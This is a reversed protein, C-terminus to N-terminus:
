SRFEVDLVVIPWRCHPLLTRAEEVTPVFVLASDDDVPSLDVNGLIRWEREQSWETSVGTKANQSFHRQFFPRDSAGLRDWDAHDGYTVPRTGLQQLHERRICIGYPEFDWRGRHVRFTRLKPVDALQVSTFSVLTAGGRIASSTALIQQQILIRRLAALASHDVIESSFILDDLFDDQAQDPWARHAARTCHTLYPWDVATPLSIIRSSESINSADLSAVSQDNTQPNIRKDSLGGLVVWGVAGAALLEAAIKQSVLEPGLAVYVSQPRWALDALRRKILPLLKGRHRLHFLLLRDSMAMLVRDALPSSVLERSIGKLDEDLMPSVHAEYCRTASWPQRALADLWSRCDKNKGPPRILLLRLDFLEAARRAFEHTTTTAATVIVERRGDAKACATRFVRFWDQSQNLNHGLHSSVLGVRQGAPIGRPWWVLCVGNWRRFGDGCESDPGITLRAGVVMQDQAWTQLRRGRRREPGSVDALSWALVIAPLIDDGPLLDSLQSAHVSAETAPLWRAQRLVQWVIKGLSDM